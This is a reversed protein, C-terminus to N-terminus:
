AARGMAPFPKDKTRRDRHRDMHHVPCLWIVDLPKSYDHHHAQACIDGCVQCPLKPLMGARVAHQLQRRAKEKEPYRDKSNQENQYGHNARYKKNYARNYARMKARNKERYARFYANYEENSAFQNRSPM